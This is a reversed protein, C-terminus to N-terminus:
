LELHLRLTEEVKEMDDDSLQGLCSKLRSKDAAMIQDSMLKNTRGRVSVLVNGPYIHTTNSTFPVVVVRSLAANSADNSVIVAPRTKQTESGTSPEFDVWWVEGRKMM